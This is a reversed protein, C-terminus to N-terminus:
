EVEVRYFGAAPLGVSVTETTTPSGGAIGTAIDVYAGDVTDARGVAYTESASSTWTLTVEGAGVDVSISTIEPQPPSLLFENAARAVRSIRVEDMAGVFALSNGGGSSRGENGISFDIESGAVVSTLNSTVITNASTDGSNLATWYFRLNSADNTNGNFTVAVHYWNSQVIAHAGAIPVDATIEQVGNAIKVFRLRLPNALDGPTPRGDIRLQWGRTDVGDDGEGTVIHMEVNTSAPAFDPRILAEVTFGTNSSGFWPDFPLNEINAFAGATNNLPFNNSSTTTSVLMATDFGSYGAEGFTAGDRVACDLTNIVVEDFADNLLSSPFNAPNTEDLHYLLRTNGDATYPTGDVNFATAARALDSIHVEDILGQFSEGPADRGENGITFDAEITAGAAASGLDNTMQFSGLEAAESPGHSLETWYLKLNDATNESGNYTVAVHYWGGQVAADVGNTPLLATFLEPDAPPVALFNTALRLNDVNGRTGLARVDAYFGVSSGIGGVTNTRTVLVTRAGAEYYGAEFVNTDLRAIFLYDLNPHAGGGALGFETSGDFGRSYVEEDNRIYVSVYNSRVLASPTGDGVYLGIDQSGLNLHSYDCVLQQGIPLSFDTRTLAYQEIADYNTTTLQLTGGVIEWSYANTTTGGNDLIVTDTYASLDGSFDDILAVTVPANSGTAASGINEFELAWPENTSNSALRFLFVRETIDGENDLSLIQMPPRAVDPIAPDFDPSVLAEFTFEGNAGAFDDPYWHLDDEGFAGPQYQPSGPIGRTDLAGDLAVSFAPAEMKAGNTVGLDYFPQATVDQVILAPLVTNTNQVEDFHWLHLTDADVTYPEPAAVSSLTLGGVVAACTMLATLRQPNTTKYLSSPKMFQTPQPSWTETEPRM